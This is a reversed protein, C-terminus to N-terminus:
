DNESKVISNLTNKKLIPVGFEMIILITKMFQVCYEYYIVYM